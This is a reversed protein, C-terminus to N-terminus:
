PDRELREIADLLAPVERSLTVLRQWNRREEVKGRQGEVPRWGSQQSDALRELCRCGGNTAMGRPKRVLCSNDGCGFVEDALARLRARREATLESM